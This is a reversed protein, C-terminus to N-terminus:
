TKQILGNNVKFISANKLIGEEIDNLSTTSIFIQNNKPLLSFLSQQRSNDLESFVDDLLIIATNNTVEYINKVLALKLAILLSRLQGGSAFNKASTNAILINFDDRHLGINTAKYLIDKEYNKKYLEFIKEKDNNKILEFHITPTYTLTIKELNKSFKDMYENIDKNLKDLFNLRTNVIILLYNILQETLIDLLNFDKMQNFNKLLANRQKLVNYYDSLNRLYDQQLQGIELDLFKRREKPSGKILNLDENSFMVSNIKGFYNSLKKQEIHNLKIKRGEESVIIESVIKKNYTDELTAFIKSYDKDFTIIDKEKNSRYSKAFCIFYISELLSTKGQANEGLIINTNRDFSLNANEIKRFHKLKINKIYM